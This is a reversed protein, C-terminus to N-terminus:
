RGSFVKCDMWYSWGNKHAKRFLGDCSLGGLAYFEKKSMKKWGNKGSMIRKEMKTLGAVNCSHLGIMALPRRNACRSLTLIGIETAHSFRM